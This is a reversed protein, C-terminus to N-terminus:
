TGGVVGSQIGTYERKGMWRERGSRDNHAISVDGRGAM